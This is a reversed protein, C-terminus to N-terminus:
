ALGSAGGGPPVGWCDLGHGYPWLGASIVPGLTMTYPTAFVPHLPDM